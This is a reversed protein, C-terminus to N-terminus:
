AEESVTLIFVDLLFSADLIALDSNVPPLLRLAVLNTISNPSCQRPPKHSRATTMWM